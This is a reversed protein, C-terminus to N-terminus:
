HPLNATNPAKPRNLQIECKGGADTKCIDIRRGIIEDIALLVLKTEHDIRKVKQNLTLVDEHRDLLRHLQYRDPNSLVVQLPTTMMEGRRRRRV